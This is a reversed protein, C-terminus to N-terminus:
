SGRERLLQQECSPANAARDGASTASRRQQKVTRCEGGLLRGRRRRNVGFARTTEDDAVRHDDVAVGLRRVTRDVDDDLVAQDRRDARRRGVAMTAARKAVRHDVGGALVHHGADDVGVHVPVLLALGAHRLRNLVLAVEVEGGAHGRRAFDAAIELLRLAPLGFAVRVRDDRRANQDVREDALAAGARRGLDARPDAVDLLLAGVAQLDDAHIAILEFRDHVLRVREPQPGGRVDGDLLGGRLVVDLEADVRDLVEVADGVRRQVADLVERRLHVVRVLNVAEAAGALQVRLGIGSFSCLTM